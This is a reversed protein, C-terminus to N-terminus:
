VNFTPLVDRYKEPLPEKPGRKWAHPIVVSIWEDACSVCLDNRWPRLEAGCWKCTEVSWAYCGRRNM